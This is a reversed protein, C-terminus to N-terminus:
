SLVSRGLHLMELRRKKERKKLLKTSKKELTVIRKEKKKIDESISQKETIAEIDDALKQHQGRLLEIEKMQGDIILDRDSLMQEYSRKIDDLMLLSDNTKQQFSKLEM